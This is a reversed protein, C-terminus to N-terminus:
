GILHELAITAIVDKLKWVSSALGAALGCNESIRGGARGLHWWRPQHGCKYLLVLWVFGISSYSVAVQLRVCSSLVYTSAVGVCFKQEPRAKPM